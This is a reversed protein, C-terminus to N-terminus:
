HDLTCLYSLRKGLAHIASHNSDIASFEAMQGYALQGHRHLWESFRCEEPDLTPDVLNKEEVYAVLNALWRRHEAEAFVLATDQRSLQLNGTRAWAPDARFNRIWDPLQEAAMPHAIGYGQALDCGMHLLMTGHAITEVGEAIVKKQFADALNIVGEVISLDDPDILMGRVFGQDIKITEAPLRRLYALSAYGTGFDDISFHVGLERCAKMTQTVTVIDWLAVTELIELEFHCTPSV